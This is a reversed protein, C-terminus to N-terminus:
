YSMMQVNGAAQVIRAHELHKSFLPQAAQLESRLEGNQASPILAGSVADTAAALRAVFIKSAAM